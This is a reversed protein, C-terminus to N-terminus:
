QWLKILKTTKARKGAIIRLISAKWFNASSSTPRQRQTATPYQPRPQDTNSFWCLYCQHVSIFLPWPQGMLFPFLSLWGQEATIQNREQETSASLLLASRQLDSRQLYIMLSLWRCITLQVENIRGLLSFSGKSNKVQNTLKSHCKM